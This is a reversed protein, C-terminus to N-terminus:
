PRDLWDEPKEAFSVEAESFEIRFEAVGDCENATCPLFATKEKLPLKEKNGLAKEYKEYCDPCMEVYYGKETEFWEGFVIRVTGKEFVMDHTCMNKEM